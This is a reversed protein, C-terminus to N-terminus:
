LPPLRSRHRATSGTADGAHQRPWRRSGAGAPPHGANSWRLLWAHAEPLPTLRAVVATTLIGVGKTTMAKDVATPLEAPGAGHVTDAAIRRLLRRIRIMARAATADHGAVDGIVLTHGEGHVFADCWDGGVPVAQVAAVQRMALHIAGSRQTTRRQPWEMRQDHHYRTNRQSTKNM